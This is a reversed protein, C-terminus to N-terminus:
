IINVLKWMMLLTLSFRYSFEGAAGAPAEPTTGLVATSSVPQRELTAPHVGAGGPDAETLLSRRAAHLLPRQRGRMRRLRTLAKDPGKRM